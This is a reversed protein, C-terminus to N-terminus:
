RDGEAVTANRGGVYTLEDVLTIAFNEDTCRTDTPSACEIDLGYAVGHELWSVTWIRRNESVFAPEGRM